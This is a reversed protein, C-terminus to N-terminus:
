GGVFGQDGVPGFRGVEISAWGSVLAEYDHKGRLRRNLNRMDPVLLSFINL